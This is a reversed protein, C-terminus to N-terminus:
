MCCIGADCPSCTAGGVFNFFLIDRLGGAAGLMQIAAAMSTAPGAAVVRGLGTDDVSLSVPVTAGDGSGADVATTAACTMLLPLAPDVTCRVASRLASLAGNSNSVALSAVTSATNGLTTNEGVTLQGRDPTAVVFDINSLNGFVPLGTAVGTIMAFSGGATQQCGGAIIDREFDALVGSDPSTSRTSALLLSVGGDGGSRGECLPDVVMLAGADCASTDVAFGAGAVGPGCGRVIGAALASCKSEATMGPTLTVANSCARPVPACPCGTSEVNFFLPGGLPIEPPLTNTTTIQYPDCGADPSRGGADSCSVTADAGAEARSADADARSADADAHSADADAHSADADAADALTSDPAPAGDFTADLPSADELSTDPPQSIDAPLLGTRGGCAVVALPLGYRAFLERGGCITLVRRRRWRWTPGGPSHM